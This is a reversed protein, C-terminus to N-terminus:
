KEDKSLNKTCVIDIGTNLINKCVIDGIDAPVSVYLRSLVKSFDIWLSIDVPATSKVPIVNYKKSGRVRVLSTFVDKSM